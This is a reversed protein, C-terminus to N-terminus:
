NGGNGPEGRRRTGALPRAPHIVQLPTGNMV